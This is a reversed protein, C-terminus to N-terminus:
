PQKNKAESKTKMAGEWEFLGPVLQWNRLAAAAPDSVRALVPALAEVTQTPIEVMSVVRVSVRPSEFRGEAADPFLFAAMRDNPNLTAALEAGQNEVERRWVETSYGFHTCNFSIAVPVATDARKKLAETVFTSIMLETDFGEPDQEIYWTLEPCAQLVLRQAPIGRALLERRHTDEEITTQTAFLLVTAAPNKGLQEEILDVGTQVIGRVPIAEDHAAACDPLLVSLTNCAVLIVDPAYRDKMAQLANNFIEVKEGRTALSNYGAEPRFLANVFTITVERYRRTAEARRAIDAVVSLGGLGSDTVVINLSEKETLSPAPSPSALAPSTAACDARSAASRTSDPASVCSTICFVFLAILGVPRVAM